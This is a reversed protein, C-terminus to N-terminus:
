SVLLALGHHAGVSLAVVSVGAVRRRADDGAARGLEAGVDAIAQLLVEEVAGLAAAAAGALVAAASTGGDAALDCGPDVVVFGDDDADARTHAAKDEEGDHAANYSAATAAACVLFEGRRGRLRRGAAPLAPLTATLWLHCLVATTVVVLILLWM